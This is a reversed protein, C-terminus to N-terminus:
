ATAMTSAPAELNLILKKKMANVQGLVNDLNANAGCLGPIGLTVM